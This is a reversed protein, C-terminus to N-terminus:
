HWIGVDIKILVCFLFILVMSVFSLSTVSLIFDSDLIQPRVISTMIAMMGVFSLAACFIYTLSKFIKGMIENKLM